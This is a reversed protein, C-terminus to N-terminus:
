TDDIQRNEYEKGDIFIVLMSSTLMIMAMSRRAQPM